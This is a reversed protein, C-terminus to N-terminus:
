ESLVWVPLLVKPKTPHAVVLVRTGPRLTSIWPEMLVFDETFTINTSTVRWIGRAEGSHSRAGFHVHIVEAIAAFGHTLARHIHWIVGIPILLNFLAGAGMISLLFVHQSERVSGMAIVAGILLCGLVGLGLTFVLIPNVALRIIQLLPVSRKPFPQEELMQVLLYRPHVEKLEEATQEFLASNDRTFWISRNFFGGVKTNRSWLFVIRDNGVIPINYLQSQAHLLKHVEVVDDGRWSGMGPIVLRKNYGCFVFLIDRQDMQMERVEHWFIEYTGIITRHEIKESDIQTRGPLIAMYATVVLLPAAPIIVRYDRYMISAGIGSLILLLLSYAIFRHSGYSLYLIYRKETPPPRLM